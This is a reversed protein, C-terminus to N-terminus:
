KENEYRWKRYIVLCYDKDPIVDSDNLLLRYIKKIAKNTEDIINTIDSNGLISDCFDYRSTLDIGYLASTGNLDSDKFNINLKNLIRSEDPQIIYTEKSTIIEIKYSNFSEFVRLERLNINVIHYKNFSFSEDDNLMVRIM